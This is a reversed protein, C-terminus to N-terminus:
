ILKDIVALEIMQKMTKFESQFSKPVNKILNEIEDATDCAWLLDCIVKQQPTLGEVTIM